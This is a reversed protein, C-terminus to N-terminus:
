RGLTKGMRRGRRFIEEPHSPEGGGWNRKGGPLASCGTRSQQGSFGNKRGKLRDGKNGSVHRKGGRSLRGYLLLKQKEARMDKEKRRKTKKNRGNPTEV